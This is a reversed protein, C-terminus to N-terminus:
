EQSLPRLVVRFQKRYKVPRGNLTAARFRWSRAAALLDDDYSPAVPEIIAASDVTGSENIVIELIGQFQLRALQGTPMWRPMAADIERPASINAEDVTYIRDLPKVPPEVAATTPPPPATEAALQANSLSLFGDGLQRLDALASDAAVDQDDLVKLLEEFQSSAKTFDEADFSDKASVYLNRAAVPLMRKRVTPFIAVLRPSVDTPMVYLPKSVVIRELSREADATRGLGLLCLARYQEVVETAESDELSSIAALAEEYSAAAFLAKVSALSPEAAFTTSVGAMQIAVCLGLLRSTRANM